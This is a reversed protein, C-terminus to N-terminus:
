IAEVGPALQVLGQRARRPMDQPDPGTWWGNIALRKAQAHPAVPTVFHLSDSSVNFLILTNFTPPLYHATPCWFLDGGWRLDWEKTLHWVFAVQRRELVGDGIHDTHPLSYDGPMYWSASLSTRGSCERGSLREIQKRTVPSDFIKRCIGLERPETASDYINHHRYHFHEDSYDEYLRWASFSDLCEFMKDAFAEHFAQRITVIRGAALETGIREQLGRDGAIDDNLYTSLDMLLESVSLDAPEM